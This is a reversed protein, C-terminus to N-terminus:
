GGIKDLASSGPYVLLAPNNTTNGSGIVTTTRTRKALFDKTAM